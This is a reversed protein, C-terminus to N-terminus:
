WSIQPSTPVKAGRVMVEDPNPGAMVHVTYYDWLEGLTEASPGDLGETDGAAMSAILRVANELVRKAEDETTAANVTVAITVTDDEVGVYADRVVLEENASATVISIHDDNIEPEPEPTPEPEPEPEPEVAVPEPEPEETTETTEANMGIVIILIFLGFAVGGIIKLIRKM